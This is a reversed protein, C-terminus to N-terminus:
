IVINKMRLLESVGMAQSTSSIAFINLCGAQINNLYVPATTSVFDGTTANYTPNDM